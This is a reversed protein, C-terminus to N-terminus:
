NPIIALAVLESPGKNTLGLHDHPIGSRLLENSRLFKQMLPDEVEEVRYGCIM